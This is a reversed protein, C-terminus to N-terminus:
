ADKDDKVEEVEVLYPESPRIYYDPAPGDPYGDWHKKIAKQAAKLTKFDSESIKKSGWGRESEIWDVRYVAKVM